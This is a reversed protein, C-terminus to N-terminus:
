SWRAPSNPSRPSTWCTTWHSHTVLVFDARPIHEAILTEDPILVEDSDDDTNPNALRPERFQTVFPDIIIVTHGDEIRWGANGLYTLTLPERAPLKAVSAFPMAALVAGFLLCRRDIM